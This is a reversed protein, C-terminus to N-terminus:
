ICIYRYAYMLACTAAASVEPAHLLRRTLQAYSHICNHALPSVRITLLPSTIFLSISIYLMYVFRHEYTHAQTRAQFTCLSNGLQFHHTLIRLQLNLRVNLVKWLVAPLKAM